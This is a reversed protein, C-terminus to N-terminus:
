SNTIIERKLVLIGLPPLTLKLSSNKGHWHVEESKLGGLNGVGSGGYVGADSNLIERYYGSTPVGVRYGYRPVPTMNCVILSVRDNEDSSSKRLFSITSQESDKFDIWEFGAYSFDATHFEDNETYIRNLDRVFTSVGKNLPNGSEKWDLETRFNWENKQGFETGMFILKKGPNTYMYGLALRLNAFRQWEDGPMKYQMSRKGYVVEDHSFVLVFNESFAYLLSFTLNRHHYKRFIPDTQFYELTDHMWGMNWKLDFGLGGKKVPHTVGPWATSEEAITMSKPFYLRVVENTERLFELAQLNERGGYENPLWEGEKRSYDLYLMSAVADLRLGDAHYKDLWFLANSILFARVENRSYNFILTGWDPTVGRRPDAHEFLHTGDFLALGYDDKPFHAPVWDLIVGIGGRHCKDVFYMFDEPSGHRSTPAFYNTVQYGWSDDLPHEMIPMLEIHTFGLGNLYPVLADAIDRYNLFSGDKGKKWSGLHLEYISIASSTVTFKQNKARIWDEDTWHYDDLNAVISATRPRVECQFAFPDAKLHIKGDARSKIAYKYVEGEKVRPVFIEWIGSVGTSIMPIEGPQWHNFDAVVSVSAANPAWVAFQTGRVAEIVLVHSGLKEYAKRHTGEGFLYLDLEGLQPRFAYPDEREDVYGSKDEYSITYKPVSETAIQVEWFGRPDTKIFDRRGSSEFNAWARIARPLYARVSLLRRNSSVFHPGLLKSPDAEEFAILRDIQDSSVTSEFQEM